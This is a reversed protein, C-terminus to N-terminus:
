VGIPTVKEREPEREPCLAAELDGRGEGQIWHGYIDVTIQISSHGLQKQVYAPSMHSMLLLTAYTHRLDHPNRRRLGCARCVREVLRQVKRQSYPYGREDPDLFLLSVDGGKGTQLGEKRLQTIYRQLETVLFDPLDVMRKKGKKPNSFRHRKFSECVHYTKTGFDLNEFRMSLAEGLRFGAFGMMKLILVEAWSVVPMKEATSIFRDLEDKSFPEAERMKRQRKPPLIKKLIRQTPNNAVLEEEMADDFIGSLIDRVASVTSASRKKYVHQLFRRVDMRKIEQLTKGAFYPAIHIRIIAEYKDHTKPDWRGANTELWVKGYKVLDTKNEPNIGMILARENDDLKKAIAEAMEIAKERDKESPGVSISKRKGQKTLYISWVGRNTRRVRVGKTIKYSQKLRGKTTQNRPM